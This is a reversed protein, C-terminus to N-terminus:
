MAKAIPITLGKYTYHLYKRYDTYFVDGSRLHLAVAKDPIPTSKALAIAENVEDSFEIKKFAQAPSSNRLIEAADSIHDSLDTRPGSVGGCACLTWEVAALQHKHKDFEWAGKTQEPSVHHKNIFEKSFMRD